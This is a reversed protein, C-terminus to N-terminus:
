DEDDNDELEAANQMATAAMALISTFPDDTQTVALQTILAIGMGILDEPQGTLTIEPRDDADLRVLIEPTHETAM